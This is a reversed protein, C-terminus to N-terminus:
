GEPHDCLLVLNYEPIELLKRGQRQASPQTSQWIIKIDVYQFNM